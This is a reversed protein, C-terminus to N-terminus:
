VGASTLFYVLLLLMVLIILAAAAMILVTSSRFQGTNITRKNRIFLLAALTIIATGSVFSVISLTMAMTTSFYTKLPTTFHLSAALFGIGKLALATRLWALFTRENALHQQIFASDPTKTGKNAM